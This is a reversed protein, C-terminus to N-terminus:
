PRNEQCLHFPLEGEVWQLEWTATWPRTYAGPDDITVEYILTDQDPRTFRETLQMRNTHPLGGTTFWFDENFGTTEVVLTDGQWGGVARGYYLPNDDDGGVQGIPNRGDLYLIRFNHNGSGMNVFIRETERHEVFEVGFHSLFQRPGGPPKCNLFQPDDQLFRGQRLKYLELAWPQMPAVEGADNINTLLGDPSIAVNSGEEVVTTATPFGWYGQQGGDANSLMPRGDPWHPAPRPVLPKVPALDDLTLLAVNTGEVTMRNGWIQRSGDRALLGEVTVHTGPPVSDDNWGSKQLDIKSPFEVAWNEALAGNTVNVFVHVHPNRWDVNTVIGNVTTPRTEDFKSVISHHAATPMAAFAYMGLLAAPLIVAVLRTVGSRM